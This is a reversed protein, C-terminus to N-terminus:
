ISRTRAPLPYSMSTSSMAYRIDSKPFNAGRIEQVKFSQVGFKRYCGPDPGRIQCRTMSFSAQPPANINTMRGRMGRHCMDEMENDQV